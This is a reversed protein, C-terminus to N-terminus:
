RGSFLVAKGRRVGEVERWLNEAIRYIALRKAWSSAKQFPNFFMQDSGFFVPLDFFDCPRPIVFPIQPAELLLACLQPLPLPPVVSLSRECTM